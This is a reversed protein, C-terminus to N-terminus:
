GAAPCSGASPCGGSACGGDGSATAAPKSSYGDKFWGGGKLQFSTNSMVKAVSGSCTAGEAQKHKKLPEASLTQMVEFVEGCKKCQYEYIPM